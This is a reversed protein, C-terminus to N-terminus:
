GASSTGAHARTATSRRLRFWSSSMAPTRHNWCWGPAPSSRWTTSRAEVLARSSCWTAGGSGARRSRVATCRRATQMARCRFASGAFCSTHSGSCDFGYASTGAWLYPLGIFREGEAVIRRGTPTPIAAASPYEAVSRRAIALTGGSPTAIMDYRGAQAMLPLRTAYTVALRPAYTNADRLWAVKRTVVAVPHSRRANILSRHATLQRTPVWGPYGYRNLPTAQGRVAVKTWAGRRGLVAVQAGYAAQTQLRGVLWARQAVSMRSLWRPIDVPRTTSPADVPRAEGPRAWVTALTVRVFAVGPGTTSAARPHHTSTASAGAGGGCAVAVLAATAVTAHSLRRSRIMTGYGLARNRRGGGRPLM